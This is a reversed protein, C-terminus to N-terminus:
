KPCKIIRKGPKYLGKYDPPNQISALLLDYMRDLMKKLLKREKEPLNDKFTDFFYIINWLQTSAKNLRDETGRHAMMAAKLHKYAHKAWADLETLFVVDDSEKHKPRKYHITIIEQEDDTESNKENDIPKPPMNLSSMASIIEMSINRFYGDKKEDKVFPEGM